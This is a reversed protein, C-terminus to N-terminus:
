LSRRTAHATLTPRHQSSLNSCGGTKTLTPQPLAVPVPKLTLTAKTLLTPKAPPRWRVRLLGAENPVHFNRWTPAKTLMRAMTRRLASPVTPLPMTTTVKIM